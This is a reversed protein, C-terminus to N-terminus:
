SISNFTEIVNKAYTTWNHKEFFEEQSRKTPLPYKGEYITQLTEKWKEPKLQLYIAYEGLYERFVPIDSVITPIGCYVAEMAVIGATEFRSPQVVATAGKYASILMKRDLYGYCFTNKRERILRYFEKKLPPHINETGTLVLPFSTDKLARLLFLQNKRETVNAAPFFIYNKVGSFNYFLESPTEKYLQPLDSPIGLHNIVIKEEPIGFISTLDTKELTNNVMIKDALNLLKERRKAVNDLPFPTGLIHLLKTSLRSHRRDFISIVVIKSRYRAKLQRFIEPTHESFGFVLIHSFDEENKEKTWDFPKIEVGLNAIAKIIEKTHTKGGGDDVSYPYAPFFLITKM